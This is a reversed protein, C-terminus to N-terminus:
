WEVDCTFPSCQFEVTNIKELVRWGRGGKGPVGEGVLGVGQLRNGVCRVLVEGQPLCM